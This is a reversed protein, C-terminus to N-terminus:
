GWRDSRRWSPAVTLDLCAMRKRADDAFRPRSSKQQGYRPRGGYLALVVIVLDLNSPVCRQGENWIGPGIGIGERRIRNGFDIAHGRGVAKRGIYGGLEFIRVPMRDGPGIGVAGRRHRHAELIASRRCTLGVIGPIGAGDADSEFDVVNQVSGRGAVGNDCIMEHPSAYPVLCFATVIVETIGLVAVFIRLAIATM